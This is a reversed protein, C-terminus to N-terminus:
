LATRRRRLNRVSMWGGSAALGILFTTLTAPEPVIPIPIPDGILELKVVLDQYDHDGLVNTIRPLDALGLYLVDGTRAPNPLTAATSYPDIGAFFSPADNASTGNAVPAPTNGGTVWKFDIQGAPLLYDYSLDYVDTLLVGPGPTTWLLVGNVYFKDTLEADGVGMWTFRVVQSASLSVTLISNFNSFGVIGGNSIDIPNPGFSPTYGWGGEITPLGQGRKVEEPDLLNINNFDTGGSDRVAEAVGGSIIFGASAAEQGLLFAAASLLLRAARFFTPINM